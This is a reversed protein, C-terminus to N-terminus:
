FRAGGALLTNCRRRNEAVIATAHWFCNKGKGKQEGGTGSKGLARYGFIRYEDAIGVDLSYEGCSGLARRGGHVLLEADDVQALVIQGYPDNMATRCGSRGRGSLRLGFSSWFLCGGSVSAVTSRRRGIGRRAAHV